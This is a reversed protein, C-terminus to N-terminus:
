SGGACDCIIKIIKDTGNLWELKGCNKMIQQKQNLTKKIADLLSDATLDEQRIMTCCGLDTMYNANDIQDGRSETKPLPILVAPKRLSLLECMAGSGARSVVIDAWAFANEPASLYECQVYDNRKINRDTKGRGTIHLINYSLLLRDIDARVAKNIAASGLSGGMILLNPKNRVFGTVKAKVGKFLEPRLIAGTHVANKYKEATQPFTTCIVRCRRVALRNALGMTLDSEHSVIPIKQRGGALVVPLAAYGGKSFIIDPKIQKLLTKAESVARLLKFPIALNKVTLTRRLKVTTIGHYELGSGQAIEKEIGDTGGIYIIRSFYKKLEPLLAICPLCHGATGGGTLVITM